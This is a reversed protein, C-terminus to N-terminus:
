AKYRGGGFYRADRRALSTPFPIDQVVSVPSHMPISSPLVLQFEGSPLVRGVNGHDDFDVASASALASLLCDYSADEQLEDRLYKVTLLIPTLEDTVTFCPIETDIAPVPIDTIVERQPSPPLRSM